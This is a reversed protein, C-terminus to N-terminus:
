GDSAAGYAELTRDAVTDWDYQRAKDWAKRGMHELDLNLCQRLATRLGDAQAPDYLIGVDRTVIEPLCGIAPAIVPKGFSLALMASGSTLVHTFPLVVADAANFYVQVESDSVFEPMMMIRHDGQVASVLAAGYDESYPRGVILLRLHSELLDRFAAILDELGKYPRVAGFFLFVLCSLDVGLLRRAELRSITNPYAQVYNGHYAIVVQRRRRFRQWLQRRGEECHVIVSHATHATCLRSIWDVEPYPREHPLTNHMTWVVRYGLLRALILKANFRLMRSWSERRSAGLYHYQTWHFHLVDVSKRNRLLWKGSLYDSGPNVFVVGRRKLPEEMLDLIPNARSQASSPFVAVRLGSAIGDEIKSGKSSM